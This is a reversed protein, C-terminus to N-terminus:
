AVRQFVEHAITVFIQLGDFHAKVLHDGAHAAFHRHFDKPIVGHRQPTGGLAHGTHEALHAARFAHLHLLGCAHGNDGHARFVIRECPVPEVAVREHVGHVDGGAAAGRALNELAVAAEVDDHAQGLIQAFVGVREGCKGYWQRAM